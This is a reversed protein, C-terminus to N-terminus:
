GETRPEPDVGQVQALADLTVAGEKVIAHTKEVAQAITTGNSTKLNRRNMSALIAAIASGLAAIYAPVGYVLLANWDIDSGLM